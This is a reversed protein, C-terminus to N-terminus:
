VQKEAYKMTSEECCGSCWDQNGVYEWYGCRACLIVEGREIADLLLEELLEPTVPHGSHLIKKTM